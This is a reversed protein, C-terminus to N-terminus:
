RDNIKLYAKQFEKFDLLDNGNTDLSKFIQEAEEATINSKAKQLAPFLESRDIFGDKTVDLEDFIEKLRNVDSMEMGYMMEELERSKRRVKKEKNKIEASKGEIDKMTSESLSKMKMIEDMLSSTKVPPPGLPSEDENDNAEDSM